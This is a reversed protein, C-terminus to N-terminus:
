LHLWSTLSPRQTSDKSLLLKKYMESSQLAKIDNIINELDQDVLKLINGTQALAAATSDLSTDLQQLVGRLQKTVPKVGALTASLSGSVQALDDLSQNIKPLLNQDFDGRFDQLSKRNQEAIKELETRTEQAATM